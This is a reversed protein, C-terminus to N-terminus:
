SRICLGVIPCRRLEDSRRAGQLVAIGISEDYTPAWKAAAVAHGFDDHHATAVGDAGGAHYVAEAVAKSVAHLNRVDPLLPDGPRM